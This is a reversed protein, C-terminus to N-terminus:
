YPNFIMPPASYTELANLVLYCLPLFCCLIRGAKQTPSGGSGCAIVTSFSDDLMCSFFVKVTNLVTKAVDIM